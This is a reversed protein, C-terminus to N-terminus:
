PYANTGPRRFDSAGQNMAAALGAPRRSMAYPYPINSQLPLRVFRGCRQAAPVLPPRGAGHPRAHFDGLSRAFQCVAAACAPRAHRLRGPSRAHWKM